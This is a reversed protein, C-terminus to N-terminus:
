KMKEVVRGPLLPVIIGMECPLGHLQLSQLPHPIRGLVLSWNPASGPSPGRGTTRLTPRPGVAEVEGLFRSSIRIRLAWELGGSDSLFM